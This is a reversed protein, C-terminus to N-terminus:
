DSSDQDADDDQEEVKSQEQERASDDELWKKLEEREKSLSANYEAAAIIAASYQQEEAFPKGEMETEKMNPIDRSPNQRRDVQIEMDAEGDNATLEPAEFFSPPFNGTPVGFLKQYDLRKAHEEPTEIAVTKNTLIDDKSEKVIFIPEYPDGKQQDEWLKMYPHLLRGDTSPTSSSAPTTSPPSPRTYNRQPHKVYHAAAAIYPARPSITPRMSPQRSSSYSYANHQYISQVSRPPVPAAYATHRQMMMSQQMAPAHMTPQSPPRIIPRAPVVPTPQVPLFIPKTLSKQPMHEPHPKIKPGKSPLNSGSHTVFDREETTVTREIAFAFRIGPIECIFADVQAVQFMWTAFPVSKFTDKADLKRDIDVRVLLHNGHPQHNQAGIAMHSINALPPHKVADMKEYRVWHRLFFARKKVDRDRTLMFPAGTAFGAYTNGQRLQLTVRFYLYPAEECSDLNTTLPKWSLRSNLESFKTSLERDLNLRVVHPSIVYPNM